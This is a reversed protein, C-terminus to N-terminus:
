ALRKCTIHKTKNETELRSRLSCRQDDYRRWIRRFVVLKIIHSRPLKKDFCKELAFVAKIIKEM